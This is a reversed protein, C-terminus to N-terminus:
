PLPAPDSPGPAVAGHLREAYASRGRRRAVPTPEPTAGPPLPAAAVVAAVAPAVPPRAASLCLGAAIVAFGLGTPQAFQGQVVESFCGAFILSALPDGNGRLGQFAAFGLAGALLVRTLLYVSGLMPGTELIMRDWEGEALMMTRTGTMMGAAANTGRGLGLGELPAIQWVRDSVFFGSFYRDVFGARVNKQGGFRNSFVDMGERFVAFSGLVFVVALTLAVLKLSSRLFTPRVFCVGVVAALVLATVGVLARNGSLTIMIVLAGGAGLWEGRGFTRKVLTQYLFFVLVLGAYGVLGNTFSFTGAARVHGLASEMQGGEGGGAGTNIWSTTPSSFQLFVLAAMGPALRLLWRGVTIVDARDFVRPMLFILPLHLFNARFGYAAIFPSTPTMVLTVLFCILGLILFIFVLPHRPLLGRGAAQWYILLLVPDRVVLLPNSLGPFVWKRLAGEFVWLAIFLFLLRRLRVLGPDRPAGFAVPVAAVVAAAAPRPPQGRAPATALPRPESLM